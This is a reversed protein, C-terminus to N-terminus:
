LKNRYRGIRSIQYLLPGSTRVLPGKQDEKRNQLGLPGCASPHVATARLALGLRRLRRLASRAALQSVARGSRYNMLTEVRMKHLKAFRYRKASPKLRASPAAGFLYSIWFYNVLVEM